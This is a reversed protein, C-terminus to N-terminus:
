PALAGCFAAVDFVNLGTQSIVTYNNTTDYVVNGATGAVVGAGPVVFMAENGTSTQLGLADIRAPAPGKATITKVVNGAADLSSYSHEIPNHIFTQTPNGAADYHTTVTVTGWQQVLLPFSCPNDPGVPLVFAPVEASVDKQITPAAAFARLPLLALSTALLLIPFFRLRNV